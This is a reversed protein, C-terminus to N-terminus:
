YRTAVKFFPPACVFYDMKEALRNYVAFDEPSLPPLVPDAVTGANSVVDSNVNGVGAGAGTTQDQM